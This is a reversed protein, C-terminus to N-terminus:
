ISWRKLWADCVGKFLLSEASTGRWLSNQLAHYKHGFLSIKLQSRQAVVNHWFCHIKFDYVFTKYQLNLNRSRGTKEMVGEAFAQPRHLPNSSTHGEDRTVAWRSSNDWRKLSTVRWMPRLSPRNLVTHGNISLWSPRISPTQYSDCPGPMLLTSSLRPKLTIGVWRVAFHADKMACFLSDLKFRISAVVRHTPVVRSQLKVRMQICVGDWVIVDGACTLAGREKEQGGQVWWSKCCLCRTSPRPVLSLFAWCVRSRPSIM